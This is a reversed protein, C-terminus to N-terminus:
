LHRQLRAFGPEPFRLKLMSMVWPRLGCPAVVRGLILQIKWRPSWWDHIRLFFFFYRHPHSYLYVAAGCVFRFSPASLM